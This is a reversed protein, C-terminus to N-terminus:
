VSSYSWLLQFPAESHNFPCIFINEFNRDKDEEEKRKVLGSRGKYSGKLLFYATVAMVSKRQIM